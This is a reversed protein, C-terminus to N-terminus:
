MYYLENHEREFYPQLYIVSGSRVYIPQGPDDAREPM